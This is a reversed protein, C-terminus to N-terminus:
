GLCEFLCASECIWEQSGRGCRPRKTALLSTWHPLTHAGWWASGVEHRRGHGMAGPALAAIRRIFLLQLPVAVAALAATAAMSAPLGGHSYIWGFALSGLFECLLDTRRLYANSTALALVNHKGAPVPSSPPQGIVSPCMYM